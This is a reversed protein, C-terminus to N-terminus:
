EGNRQRVAEGLAERFEPAMILNSSSGGKDRVLLEDQEFQVLLQEIARYPSREINRGDIKFDIKNWRAVFARAARREPESLGKTNFLARVARRIATQRREYEERRERMLPAYGSEENVLDIIQKACELHTTTVLVKEFAPDFSMTYVAIAVAYKQLTLRVTQPHMVIIHDFQPAYLETYEDCYEDLLAIFDGGRPMIVNEPPISRAIEAIWHRQETPMYVLDTGILDEQAQQQEDRTVTPTTVVLDTRARAEPESYNTLVAEVLRNQMEPPPNMIAVFRVEAPFRGSVVKRVDVIGSSRVSNLESMAAPAKRVLEQQEDLFVYGGHNRPFVGPKLYQRTGIKDVGATLGVSSANEGSVTSDALDIGDHGFAKAVERVVTTKGTRTAGVIALDHRGSEIRGYEGVAISRVSAFLLAMLAHVQTQNYIGTHKRALADVTDFIWHQMTEADCGEPPMIRQAPPALVKPPPAEASVVMLMKRQEKSSVSVRGTMKYVGLPEVYVDGEYVCCAESKANSGRESVLMYQYSINQEVESVAFECIPPDIRRHIRALRDELERGFLDDILKADEIMSLTWTRPPDDGGMPCSECRPTRSGNRRKCDAVKGQRPFTHVDEIVSLVELNDLSLLVGENEANTLAAHLSDCSRALPSELRPDITGRVVRGPRRAERVATSAGTGQRKARTPASGDGPTQSRGNGSRGNEGTMLDLLQREAEDSRGRREQWYDTLDKGGDATVPYPLLVDKASILRTLHQAAKRGPEDCDFITYVEEANALIRKIAPNSERLQRIAGTGNTFTRVTYGYKELRQLTSYCDWEGEVIVLKAGPPIENDPFLGISGYGTHNLIKPERTRSYYRVNVLAGDHWMPLVYEGGQQRLRYGIKFREITQPEIGREAALYELPQTFRELLKKSLAALDKERPLSEVPLPRSATSPEWEPDEGIIRNYDPPKWEARRKILQGITGGEGCAQCRWWSTFVNVGASPNADGHIPCHMKIWGDANAVTSAFYPALLSREEGTMSLDSLDIKIKKSDSM